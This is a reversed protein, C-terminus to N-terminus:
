RECNHIHELGQATMFERQERKVKRLYELAAHTEGNCRGNQMAIANAECVASVATLMSVQFKEHQLRAADHQKQLETSHEIEKKVKWMLLGLLSSFIASPVGALIIVETVTM